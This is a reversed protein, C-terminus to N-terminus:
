YPYPYIGSPDIFGHNSFLLRFFWVLVALLLVWTVISVVRDSAKQGGSRAWGIITALILVFTVLTTPM